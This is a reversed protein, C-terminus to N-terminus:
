YSCEGDAIDEGDVCEGFTGDHGVALGLSSVSAAEGAGGAARSDDNTM